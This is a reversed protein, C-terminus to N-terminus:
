ETHIITNSSRSSGSSNGHYSTSNNIFFVYELPLEFSFNFEYRGEALTECTDSQGLCHKM